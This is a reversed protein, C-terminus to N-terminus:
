KYGSYPPESPSSIQARRRELPATTDSRFGPRRGIPRSSCPSPVTRAPPSYATAATTTLACRTVAQPPTAVTIAAAPDLETAHPQRHPTTSNIRGRCCATADRSVRRVAARPLPAACPTRYPPAHNPVPRPLPV